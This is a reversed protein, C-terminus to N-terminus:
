KECDAKAVFYFLEATPNFPISYLIACSQFRIIDRIHDQLLEAVAMRNERDMVDFVLSLGM